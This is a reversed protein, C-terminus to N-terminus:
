WIVRKSATVGFFEPREEEEKQTLSRRYNIRLSAVNQRVEVTWDFSANPQKSLIESEVAIALNNCMMYAGKEIDEWTSIGMRYLFVDGLGSSIVRAPLSQSPVLIDPALIVMSAKFVPGSTLYEVQETKLEDIINGWKVVLADYDSLVVQARKM